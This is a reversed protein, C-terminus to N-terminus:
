MELNDETAPEGSPRLGLESLIKLMQAHTKNLETISDNKKYGSQDKGHQYMISVGKKKIDKILKEKIEWLSLYDNVLDEFHKGRTRNRELQDQLDKKIGDRIQKKTPKKVKKDM